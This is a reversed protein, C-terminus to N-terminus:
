GAALRERAARLDEETEIGHFPEHYYGVRIPMGHYLARLQELGEQKELPSRPLEVFRFLSERQFAYIGIHKSLQMTEGGWRHPVPSRSFYIAYDESDIVVKVVNPDNYEREETLPVVLTHMQIGPDDLMPGIVPDLADAPLFPEDGQVNVIVDATIERAAEAIRDTGTPHDASTLIAKYGAARVPGAIEETDTAVVVRDVLPSLSAADCVRLIVERGGLKQLPKRPVRTSGIRAPIIVVASRSM